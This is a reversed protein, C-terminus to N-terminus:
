IYEIKIKHNLCYREAHSGKKCKVVIDPFEDFVDNSIYIVSNPITVCKLNPNDWFMDSYIAAIEPLVINTASRFGLGLTFDNNYFTVRSVLKDVVKDIDSSTFKEGVRVGQLQSFDLQSIPLSADGVYVPVAKGGAMMAYQLENMMSTSKVSNESVVSVFFGYECAIKIADLINSHWQGESLSNYDFVLYDRELLAKEIAQGIAKDKLTYSVFVTMQRTIFDIQQDINKSLDLVFVKKNPLAEVIDREQQVWQSSRSNESDIFIFWDREKIEREILDHIECEKELCKLYFLLPDFGKRELANRIVRVKEIDMHSHSIFVWGGKRKFIGKKIKEELIASTDVSNSELSENLEIKILILAGM